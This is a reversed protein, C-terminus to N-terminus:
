KNGKGHAVQKLHEHVKKGFARRALEETKSKHAPKPKKPAMHVGQFVHIQHLQHLLAICLILAARDEFFQAPRIAHLARLALAIFDRADTLTKL